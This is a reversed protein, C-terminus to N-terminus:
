LSLLTEKVNLETANEVVNTDYVSIKKGKYEFTVYDGKTNDHGVRNINIGQTLCIAELSNKDNKNIEKMIKRFKEIDSKKNIDIKDLIDVYNMIRNFGGNKELKEHTRKAIYGIETQSLEKKDSSNIDKNIYILKNDDNWITIDYNKEKIRKIFAELLESDMNNSIHINKSGKLHYMDAINKATKEKELTKHVKFSGDSMRYEVKEYDNYKHNKYRFMQNNDIDNKNAISFYADIVDDSKHLRYSNVSNIFEGKQLIEFYVSKIYNSLLDDKISSNIVKEKQTNYSISSPNKCLNYVVDNYLRIKNKNYELTVYNGNQSDHGVRNLKLNFKNLLEIFEKKNKIKYYYFLEELELRIKSKSKNSKINELHFLFKKEKQTINKNGSSVKQIKNYLNVLNENFIEFEKKNRYYSISDQNIKYDSINIHKIFYELNKDDAAFLLKEVQYEFIEKNIENLNFKNLRELNNRFIIDINNSIYKKGIKRDLLHSEHKKSTEKFTKIQEKYSKKKIKYKIDDINTNNILATKIKEINKDFWKKDFLKSTYSYNEKNSTYKDTLVLKSEKLLNTENFGEKNLKNSNVITTNGFSKEIESIFKDFSVVMDNKIIEDIRKYVQDDFVEYHPVERKKVRWDRRKQEQTLSLLNHSDFVSALENEYNIIEQISELRSFDTYGRFLRLDRNNDIQSSNVVVCHIHPKNDDWHIVSLIELESSDYNIFMKEKFQMYYNLLNDKTLHEEKFSLVFSYHSIKKRSNSELTKECLYDFKDSNGEIITFAELDRDTLYKGVDVSSGAKVSIIM